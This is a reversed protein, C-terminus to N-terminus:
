RASPLRAVVLEDNEIVISANLAAVAGPTCRPDVAVYDVGIGRALERGARGGILITSAIRSPPVRSEFGVERESLSSVVRRRVFYPASALCADTVILSADPLQGSDLQKRFEWLGSVAVSTPEAGELVRQPLRLGVSLQMLYAFTVVGIVISTARLRFRLSAAGVVLTMAIGLPYVVRRYEFPIHLRWVQSVVVCAVALAAIALLAHDRRLSRSSLVLVLALATILLFQWSYYGAVAARDLWDSGLFRYSVPEGLGATQLRLHAIVGSGLACAVIVSALVPKVIGSRWWTQVVSSVSAASSVASSGLDLIPAVVVLVAIIIASTSHATAVGILSLALLGVTRWDRRGRYILALGLVVIPIFLCALDTGLGHWYMPDLRIPAVAYAAAAVVGAGAGWLAAAAVFVSLVTCASVLALGGGLTWSSIGDLVLFSGYVAGVAPPDAFVQGPELTFPDDILLHGQGSVEEAYLLYHALDSLQLPYVIDWSAALAIAFIALVFLVVIAEHKPEWRPLTHGARANVLLSAVVAVAVFGAAALRISVETLSVGLISITTLLTSLSAVALAPLIALIRSPTALERPLLPLLALGCATLVLITAGPYPQGVTLRVVLEAGLLM